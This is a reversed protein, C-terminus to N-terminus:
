VHARGIEFFEGGQIHDAFEVLVVFQNKDTVGGHAGIFNQLRPAAHLVVVLLRTGLPQLAQHVSERFEGPDVWFGLPDPLVTLADGDDLLHHTLAHVGQGEFAQFLRHAHQALSAADAGNSNM